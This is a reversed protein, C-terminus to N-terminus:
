YCFFIPLNFEHALLNMRTRLKEYYESGQPLASSFMPLLQPYHKEVASRIPPWNGAKINLRDVLVRDVGISVLYRLLEELRQDSLCPLMPGLFTFTRVGADSLARLADLREAVPSAQPEFVMRVTDDFSTITFGAEIDSFRQIIDLDKLILKSKTQINVPFDYELLRELIRRTLQRKTEVPQYPDTVSSLLVVGRHKKPPEKELCELANVKVDVFSGWEEGFHGRRAMFRAYCYLCAHECGLYPNISYDVDQIGSRGMLTKCRIEGFRVM